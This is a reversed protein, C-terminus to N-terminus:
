DRGKKLDTKFSSLAYDLEPWRGATPNVHTEAARWTIFQLEPNKEILNAVEDMVIASLRQKRVADRRWLDFKNLLVYVVALQRAGNAYVPAIDDLVEHFQTRFESYDLSGDMLVLLGQPDVLDLLERWIDRSEGSMDAAIDIVLRDFDQEPGGDLEARRNLRTPMVVPTPALGATPRGRLLYSILTSKGGNVPGIFLVPTGGFFVDIIHGMGKLFAMGAKLFTNSALMARLTKGASSGAERLRNQLKTFWTM